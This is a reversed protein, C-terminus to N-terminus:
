KGTGSSLARLAAEGMQREADRLDDAGIRVREPLVLDSVVLLAAAQVGRAGALAFLTAAEMELAVAGEASWGPELGRNDYFLDITV